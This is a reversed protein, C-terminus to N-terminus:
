PILATDLGVLAFSSSCTAPRASIM